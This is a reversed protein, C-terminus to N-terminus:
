SLNTTAETKKNIHEQLLNQKLFVYIFIFSILIFLFRCFEIILDIFYTIFYVQGYNFLELDYIILVNVVKAIIFLILIGTSLIKIYKRSKSDEKIDIQKNLTRLVSWLVLFSILPNIVVGTKFLRTAIQEMSNIIAITNIGLGVFDLFITLLLSTTICIFVIKNEQLINNERRKKWIKILTLLLFSMIIIDIILIAYAFWLVSNRNWGAERMFVFGTLIYNSLFLTTLTGVYFKTLDRNTKKKNEKMSSLLFSGIFVVLWFYIVYTKGQSLSIDSLWTEVRFWYGADYYDYNKEFVIRVLQDNKFIFFLCAIALGSIVFIAKKSQIDYRTELPIKKPKEEIKSIAKQYIETTILSFLIFFILTYCGLYIFSMIFQSNFVHASGRWNLNLNFVYSLISITIITIFVIYLLSNPIIQNLSNEKRKKEDDILRVVYLFFLVIVLISFFRGTFHVGELVITLPRIDLELFQSLLHLLTSIVGSLITLGLISFLIKKNTYKMRKRQEAVKQNNSTILYQIICVNTITEFIVFLTYIYRQGDIFFFIFLLFAILATLSGLLTWVFKKKYKKDNKQKLVIFSLIALFVFYFFSSIIPLGYNRGFSFVL